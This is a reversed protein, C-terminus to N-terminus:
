LHCIGLGGSGGAVGPHVARAHCHAPCARGRLPGAEAFAKFLGLKDGLLVLPASSAAGTDGIMKGMFADLKTEDVTM